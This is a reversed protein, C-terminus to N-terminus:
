EGTCCAKDLCPPTGEKGCTKRCKEKAQNAIAAAEYVSMGAVQSPVLDAPLYAADSQGKLQRSVACDCYADCESPGTQCGTFFLALALM